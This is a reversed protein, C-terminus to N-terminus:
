LTVTNCNFKEKNDISFYYRINYIYKYINYLPIKKYM